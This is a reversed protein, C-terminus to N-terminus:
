SGSAILTVLIMGIFAGAATLLRRRTLPSNGDSRTWFAVVGCPNRPDDLEPPRGALGVYVEVGELMNVSLLRDVPDTQGINMGDLYVTPLCRGRVGRMAIYNGDRSSVVDLRPVDWLLDTPRAGPRAEIQERTVYRGFGGREARAYFSALRGHRRAVVRVPDIPIAVSGMRLELAILEGRQLSLPITDARFAVHLLKLTYTGPEGPRLVFAGSDDTVASLPPLTDLRFLELVVGAIPRLTGDEVVIGRVIQADVVAAPLLLALPLLLPLLRHSSHAM